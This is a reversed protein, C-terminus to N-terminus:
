KRWGFGQGQGRHMGPRKGGKDGKEIGLEEAIGRAEEMLNHMEVLRPFNDENIKELIPSDERHAEVWANYDGAEIAARVAERRAEREAKFEEKKEQWAAKEEESFRTFEPRSSDTADESAFSSMAIGTVAVLAVLAAAGSTIYNSKKM